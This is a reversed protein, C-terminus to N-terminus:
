KKTMIIVAGKHLTIVARTHGRFYKHATYSAKFYGIVLTLNDAHLLLPLYVRGSLYKLLRKLKGWDDKDLIKVKTM